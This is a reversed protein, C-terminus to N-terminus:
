EREVILWFVSSAISSKKCISYNYNPSFGTGLWGYEEFFNLFAYPARLKKKKSEELVKEWYHKEQMKGIENYLDILCSVGEVYPKKKMANELLEIAQKEDIKSKYVGPYSWIMALRMLVEPDPTVSKNAAKKYADFKEEYDWGRLDYAYGLYADYRWDTDWEKQYVEKISKILEIAFTQLNDDWNEDELLRRSLILGEIFSLDKALRKQSYKKLINDWDKNKIFFELNNM